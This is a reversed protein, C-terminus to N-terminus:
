STKIIEVLKDLLSYKKCLFVLLELNLRDSNRHALIKISEYWRQNNKFLLDRAYNISFLKIVMLKDKAQGKMATM